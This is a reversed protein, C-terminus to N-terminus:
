RRALVVIMLCFCMSINAWTFVLISQFDGVDEEGISSTFSFCFAANIEGTLEVNLNRRCLENTAVRRHTFHHFLILCDQDNASFTFLAPLYSFAISESVDDGWAVDDLVVLMGCWESLQSGILSRIGDFPIEAVDLNFRDQLYHGLSVGM